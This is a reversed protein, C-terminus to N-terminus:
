AVKRVQFSRARGESGLVESASHPSGGLEDDYDSTLDGASMLVEARRTQSDPRRPWAVLPRDSPTAPLPPPKAPEAVEEDDYDELLDRPPAEM